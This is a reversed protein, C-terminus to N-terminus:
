TIANNFALTADQHHHVQLELLLCDVVCFQKIRLTKPSFV